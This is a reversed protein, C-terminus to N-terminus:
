NLGAKALLEMFQRMTRMDIAQAALKGKRNYIFTRPIGQVGFLSNVKRGPDLLVPHTMKEKEVFPQVKALDEDSIALVVLGKAKFKDHLTQIDPLEKRCPPCWTAWFNILVVKGKLSKLNWTKGQLDTLTFDAEQRKQDDAELKALAGSLQPTELYVKLGEYKMLQALTIYPSAPKQEAGPPPSDKLSEALTTAVEQLTDRGFDGETALNALGSALSVRNDSAALQRIDLALQKTVVSREADPMNRMGSLRKSIAAQEPSLPTRQALCRSAPFALVSLGFSLYALKSVRAALNSM